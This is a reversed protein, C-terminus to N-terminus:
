TAYEVILARAQECAAAYGAPDDVRSQFAAVLPARLPKPVRCWHVNCGVFGDSLLARCGPAPCRHRVVVPKADITTSTV